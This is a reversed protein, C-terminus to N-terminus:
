RVLKLAIQKDIQAALDIDAGGGQTRVQVAVDSISPERQEVRVLVSRQNVRGEVVKALNDVTNTRGYVVHESVLTGNDRIVTKAAEYVQDLPKDYRAEITDKILPVGATKRGAVTDVCGVVAVVALALLAAFIKTKM